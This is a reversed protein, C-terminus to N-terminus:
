NYRFAMAMSTAVVVAVGDAPGPMESGVLTFSGDGNGHLFSVAGEGTLLDLKGDSDFDGVAILMPFEDPIQMTLPAAFTGDGKGLLIVLTNILMGDIYEIGAVDPIGDGNFDGTM